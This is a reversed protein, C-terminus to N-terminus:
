ASQSISKTFSGYSLEIEPPMGYRNKACFAPREETYIVREGAGTGRVVKKNFGSQTQHTYTKYNAFLVCDAWEQVLASARPQLKLQYRDYSDCTPDDFKKIESHAILVVSMGRNARLSDLGDLFERWVEIAAAYGKGYGPKEIDPWQNRRCTEAWVLPELWDLSDVAFTQFPSDEHLSTIAQVVDGWTKALPFRQVVLTGVGDELPLLVPSPAGAAFTTKGVGKPGFIVTRPPKDVRGSTLSSLDFAMCFNRWFVGPQGAVFRM